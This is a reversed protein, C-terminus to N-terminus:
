SPPLTVQLAELVEILDGACCDGPLAVAAPWARPWRAGKGAPQHVRAAAGAQQRMEAM